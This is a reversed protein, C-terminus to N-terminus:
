IGRQYFKNCLSKCYHKVCCQDPIVKSFRFGKLGGEKTCPKPKFYIFHEFSNNIRICNFVFDFDM